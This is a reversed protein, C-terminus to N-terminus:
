ERASVVDSQRQCESADRRVLPPLAGERQEVGHAKRLAGAIRRRFERTALLLADRGARREDM